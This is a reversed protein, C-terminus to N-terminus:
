VLVGIQYVILAGVYALVTMYIFTFVPWSWSNTERKIVALTSACQCCLAFFVMVSLATPVTFIPEQRLRDGLGTRGGLGAERIDEAEVNGEGFILGMSGVFVERAPFSALAAMGIRWDWGLPAVTPEIWEGARGLVSQSRWARQAENIKEEVPKIIEDLVDIQDQM